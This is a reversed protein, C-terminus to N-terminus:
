SQWQPGLLWEAAQRYGWGAPTLSYDSAFEEIDIRIPKLMLAKGDM